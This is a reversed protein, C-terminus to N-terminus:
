YTKQPYLPKTKKLSINTKLIASSKTM